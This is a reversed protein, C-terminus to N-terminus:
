CVESFEISMAPVSKEEIIQKRKSRVVVPVPTPENPLILPPPPPPHVDISKLGLRERLEVAASTPRQVDFSEIDIEDDQRKDQLM